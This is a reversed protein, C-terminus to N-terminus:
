DCFGEPDFRCSHAELFADLREASFQRAPFREVHRWAAFAVTGSPLDPDPALVVRKGDDVAAEVARELPTIVAECSVDGDPCHYGVFVGAHELIHPIADRPVPLTRPFIANMPPIQISVGDAIEANQM